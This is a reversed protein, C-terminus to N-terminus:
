VHGGHHLVLKPKSKDRDRTLIGVSDLAPLVTSLVIFLILDISWWNGCHPYEMNAENQNRNVPPNPQVTTRNRVPFLRQITTLPQGM